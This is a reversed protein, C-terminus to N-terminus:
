SFNQRKLYSLIKRKTEEMKVFDLWSSSPKKGKRTLIEVVEGSKLQYDLSVLKGNVKAGITQHGIETHIQYAFDIPTAGEPLDILDGKPTFCYIRDKLFDIKFNDVSQKKQFEKQLKQAQGIIQPYFIPKKKLYSKSDKFSQYLWHASLGAEANEDMEQTRIQIEIIQNNDAIVTTHLSQYGNPKPFTIYDKFRNPLPKYIQYIIGLSAYCEEVTSVVIRMAVLDYVKNIDFEEKSLKKYLSYYSKVRSVIKLPYINNEKLHKGIKPIITKLYNELKKQRKGVLKKTLKYEQPFALPFALDEIQRNIELFGLRHALPSYIELIEKAKQQQQSKELVWFTKLDDLVDALKITIVRSDQALSLILNRFNEKTKLDNNESLSFHFDELQYLQQIISFVDSSFEDTILNQFEEVEIKEHFLSAILADKDSKLDALTLAVRLLHNILPEKTKRFKGQYLYDAIVTSKKVLRIDKEELYSIKKILNKYLDNM